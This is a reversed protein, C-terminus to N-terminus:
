LNSIILLHLYPSEFAPGEDLVTREQTTGQRELPSQEPLSVSPEVPLV